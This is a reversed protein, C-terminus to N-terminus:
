KSAKRPGRPGRVGGPRARLPTQSTTPTANPLADSSFRGHSPSGSPSKREQELDMPSRPIDVEKADPMGQLHSEPLTLSVDVANQNYEDRENITDINDNETSRNAHASTNSFVNTKPAEESSQNSMVSVANGKMEQKTSVYATDHLPGSIPQMHSLTASRSVTAKENAITHDMPTRVYPTSMHRSEIQTARRQLAEKPLGLGPLSSRKIREDVLAPRHRQLTLVKYPSLGKSDSEKVKHQM